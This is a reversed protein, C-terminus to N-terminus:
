RIIRLRPDTEGGNGIGRQQRPVTGLMGAVDIVFAGARQLAAGDRDGGAFARGREHRVPQDRALDNRGPAQGEQFGTASRPTPM